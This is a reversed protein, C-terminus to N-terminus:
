KETGGYGGTWYNGLSSILGKRIMSTALGGGITAQAASSEDITLPSTNSGAGGVAKGNGTKGAAGTGAARSGSGKSKGYLGHGTGTAGSIIAQTSVPLPLLAFRNCSAALFQSSTGSQKSKGAKGPSASKDAADDSLASIRSPKFHSLLLEIKKIFVGLANDISSQILQLNIPDVHGQWTNVLDRFERALKGLSSDRKASSRSIHECIMVDFLVQLACDELDSGTLRESVATALDKYVNSLVKLVQVQTIHITYGALRGVIVSDDSNGGATTTDSFFEPLRQTTDVSLVSHSLRHNVNYLFYKLAFTSLVPILFMEHVTTDTDPDVLDVVVPAWHSKMESIMRVAAASGTDNANPSAMPTKSATAAIDLEVWLKKCMEYALDETVVEAWRTYAYGTVNDCCSKLKRTPDCAESVLIDPCLLALESFTITPAAAPSLFPIGTQNSSNSDSSESFSL